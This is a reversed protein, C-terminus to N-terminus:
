GFKYLMWSLEREEDGDLSLVETLRRAFRPQVTQKGKALNSISQRNVGYDEADMAAALASFSKIGHSITLKYLYRGFESFDPHIDEISVVSAESM